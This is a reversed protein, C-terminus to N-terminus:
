KTQCFDLKKDELEDCYKFFAKKEDGDEKKVKYVKGDSIGWNNKEFDSSIKCGLGFILNKSCKLLRASEEVKKKNECDKCSQCFGFFKSPLEDCYTVQTKVKVKEDFLFAIKNEVGWGEGIFDGKIKCIKGFILDPGCEKLVGAQKTDNEGEVCKMCFRGKSSVEGEKCCPATKEIFDASFSYNITFFFFFIYFFKM